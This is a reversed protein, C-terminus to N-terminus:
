THQVKRIRASSYAGAGSKKELQFISLATQQKIQGCRIDCLLFYFTLILWKAWHMPFFFNGRFYKAKISKSASLVSM